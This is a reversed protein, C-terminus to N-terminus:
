RIDFLRRRAVRIRGVSPELGQEVPANITSKCPSNQYNCASPHKPLGRKSAEPSSLVSSTLGLPFISETSTQLAIITAVPADGRLGQRDPRGTIVFPAADIIEASNMTESADILHIGAATPSAVARTTVPAPQAAYLRREDRLHIPLSANWMNTIAIRHLQIPRSM